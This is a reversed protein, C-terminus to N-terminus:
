KNDEMDNNADTMLYVSFLESQKFTRTMAYTAPLCEM